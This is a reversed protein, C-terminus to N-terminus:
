FDTISQLKKHESKCERMNKERTQEFRLDANYKKM